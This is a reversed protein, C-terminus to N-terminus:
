EYWTSKLPKHIWYIPNHWCEPASFSLNIYIKSTNVFIVKLGSLWESTSNFFDYLWLITNTCKFSYGDIKQFTCCEWELCWLVIKFRKLIYKFPFNFSLLEHGSSPAIYMVRHYFKRPMGFINNKHLKRLINITESFVIWLAKLVRVIRYVFGM